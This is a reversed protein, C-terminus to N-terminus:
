TSASSCSMVMKCPLLLLLGLSLSVGLCSSFGDRGVGGSLTTGLRVAGGSLTAVSWGLMINRVGSGDLAGSVMSMEVLAVTIISLWVADLCCAGTGCCIMHAIVFGHWKCHWAALRVLARGLKCYVNGEMAIGEIWIHTFKFFVFFEAVTRIPQQPLCGIGGFDVLECLPMAVGWSGVGHKEDGNQGDGLV